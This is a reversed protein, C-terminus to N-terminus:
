YQYQPYIKIWIWGTGVVEFRKVTKNDAGGFNIKPEVAYGMSDLSKRIEAAYIKCEKNNGCFITVPLRKNSIRSQLDRIDFLDIHRQEPKFRFDNVNEQNVAKQESPQKGSLPNTVATVMLGNGAKRAATDPKSGPPLHKNRNNYHYYTAGPSRGKILGAHKVGPSDKTRGKISDAVSVPNKIEAPTHVFTQYIVIISVIIGTIWAIM